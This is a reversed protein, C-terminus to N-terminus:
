AQPGLDLAVENEHVTDLHVPVAQIHGINGCDKRCPVSVLTEHNQLAHSRPQAVPMSVYVSACGLVRANRHRRYHYVAPHVYVPNLTRLQAVHAQAASHLYHGDASHRHYLVALAADHRVYGGGRRLPGNMPSELSAVKQASLRFVRQVEQQRELAPLKGNRIHQSACHLSAAYAVQAYPIEHVRIELLLEVFQIRLQKFGGGEDDIDAVVVAAIRAIRIVNKPMQRLIGHPGSRPAARYVYRSISRPRHVHGVIPGFRSIHCRRASLLYVVIRYRHEDIASRKGRCLIEARHERAHLAARYYTGLSAAACSVAHPHLQYRVM